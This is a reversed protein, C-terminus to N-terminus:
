EKASLVCWGMPAYKGDYDFVTRTTGSPLPRGRIMRTKPKRFKEDFTVFEVQSWRGVRIIFQGPTSVAEELRNKLQVILAENGDNVDKYFNKYETKFEDWYFENCANQIDKFSIAKLLKPFSREDGRQKLPIPTKQLDRDITIELESSASGGLLAGKLVEAQIQTGASELSETVKDFSVIKLGGVLQTGTAKFSCDSIFICRLPDNKPDEYDFLKKQMIEGYRAAAKWEHFFDNNRAVEMEQIFNNRLRERENSSRKNFFWNLLATRVAGKVSSGPIVPRPTGETHYMQLVKAANEYPDKDRNKEFTRYFNKTIECPYDTDKKETCRDQFFRQLEKMNGEASAREFATLAKKDGSLRQLIRDSSFKWYMEKKFDLDGVKKAIKYDLPTLEEGNGIHVGTLPTLTLTYHEKAM